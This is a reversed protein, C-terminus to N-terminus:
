CALLASLKMVAVEMAYAPDLRSRKINLDAEQIVLLGKKFKDDTLRDRCKGWFWILGGIMQLPYQGAGILEELAKLAAAGDRRELAKTVDFINREKKAEDSVIKAFPLVKKYFASRTDISKFDLVLIATSSNEATWNLIVEKLYDDLKEAQRIVVVRQPAIAPLSLLAKRLLDKDKSLDEIAYFTDCDFLADGSKFIKNKLATIKSDKETQDTGVIIYLM